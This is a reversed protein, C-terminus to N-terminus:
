YEEKSLTHYLDMQNRYINGIRFLRYTLRYEKTQDDLELVGAKLLSALVRVLTTKNFGLKKELESFKYSSKEFTFADLVQFSRHISNIAYRDNPM